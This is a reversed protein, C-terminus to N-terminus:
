KNDACNDTIPAPAWAEYHPQDIVKMGMIVHAVSWEGRDQPGDWQGTNAVHSTKMEEEEEEKKKICLFMSVCDM